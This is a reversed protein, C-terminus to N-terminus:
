VKVGLFCLGEFGQVQAFGVFLGSAGVGQM